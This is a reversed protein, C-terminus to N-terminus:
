SLALGHVYTCHDLIFNLRQLSFSVLIEELSVYIILTIPCVQCWKSYLELYFFFCFFIFSCWTNGKQTCTLQSSAHHILQLSHHPHAIAHNYFSITTLTQKNISQQPNDYHINMGVFHCASALINNKYSLVGSQRLKSMPVTHNYRHNPPPSRLGFFHLTSNQLIISTLM